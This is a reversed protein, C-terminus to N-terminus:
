LLLAHANPIFQKSGPLAAFNRYDTAATIVEIGQANLLDKARPMHLVSTVLAVKFDVLKSAPVDAEAGTGIARPYLVT